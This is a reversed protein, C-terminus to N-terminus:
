LTAGPKEGQVIYRLLSEGPPTQFWEVHGIFYKEFAVRASHDDHLLSAFYRHESLAFHVHCLPLVAALAQRSTASLPRRAEYGRLFAGLADYRVQWQSMDPALWTIMSREIAIALDFLTSTRDAMGFDFVSVPVADEGTGRWM